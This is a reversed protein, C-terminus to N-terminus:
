ETIVTANKRTSLDPFYYTCVVFVYFNPDASIACPRLTYLKARAGVDPLKCGDLKVAGARPYRVSEAEETEQICTRM